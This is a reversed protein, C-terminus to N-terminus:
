ELTRAYVDMLDKYRLLIMFDRYSPKEMIGAALEQHTRNLKMDGSVAAKIVRAIAEADQKVVEEKKSYEEPIVLKWVGSNANLQDERITNLSAYAAQYSDETEPFQQNFVPNLHTSICKLSRFNTTLHLVEGGTKKVLEKVLNYIDIDARRFRYISQRPDGVVFLSGSHPSLKTWDREEIEKGTLYFVIEAQIPDTDQFEDVLLTRYKDQFYERVEPYNKLLDATM